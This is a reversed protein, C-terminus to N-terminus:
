DTASGQSGRAQTCCASHAQCGSGATEGVCCGSRGRSEHGSCKGRCRRQERQGGCRGSGKGHGCCCALTQRWRSSGWRGDGGHGSSGEAEPLIATVVASPLAAVPPVAPMPPAAPMPPLKMKTRDPELDEGEQMAQLYKLLTPLVRAPGPKQMRLYQIAPDLVPDLVRAAYDRAEQRKRMAKSSPAVVVEAVM